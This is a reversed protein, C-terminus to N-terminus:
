EENEIVPDLLERADHGKDLQTREIKIDITGIAQLIYFITQKTQGTRYIRKEAQENDSATWERDLFIIYRCNTQLGDVGTGLVGFTGLLVQPGSDKSWNNINMQRVAPKQERKITVVRHKKSLLYKELSEISQAYKSFIVVKEDTGELWDEIWEFKVNKLKEDFLQPNSTLQQRRIASEISSTVKIGQELLHETDIVRAQLEKDYEGVIKDYLKKVKPDLKLRIKIYEPKEISGIDHEQGGVCYLNLLEQLNNIMQKNKTLGNAHWGWNDKIMDCFCFQFDTYNTISSPDLWKLQAALDQPRNKIPTGTLCHRYRSNLQFIATTIKSKMSKIKHSEDLVILDWEFSKATEFNDKNYLQEYNTIWWTGCELYGPWYRKLQYEWTCIVSKPCLIMVKFNKRLVLKIRMITELTKGYGPKNINFVYQMTLSKALDSLQYDKLKFDKLRYDEKLQKDVLTSVKEISYPTVKYDDFDNAIIRNYVCDYMTNMKLDGMLEKTRSQEKISNPIDIRQLRKM